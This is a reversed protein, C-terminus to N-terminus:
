TTSETKEEPTLMTIKKSGDESSIHDQIITNEKHMLEHRLKILRDIEKLFVRKSNRHVIFWWLNSILLLATSIGWHTQAAQGAALWFISLDEPPVRWATILILAAFLFLTLTFIAGKNILLEIIDWVNKGKDSM